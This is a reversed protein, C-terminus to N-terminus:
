KMLEFSRKVSLVITSDGNDNFDDDITTTMVTGKIEFGHFMRSVAAEVYQYAAENEDWAWVDKDGSVSHAAAFALTYDGLPMSHTLKFINHDTDLGFYEPAHYWYLTTNANFYLGVYYEGYNYDDSYSAGHYTYQAYGVDFGFAPNIDRYYGLYYDWELNTDDNGGFDVNSAWTGSYLGSTHSYNLAGQLAPGKDTQSVGNFRYDSVVEIDASVAALSAVPAFALAFLLHKKM